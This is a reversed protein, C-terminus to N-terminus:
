LCVKRWDSGLIKRIEHNNNQALIFLESQSPLMERQDPDIKNIKAIAQCCSKSKALYLASIKGLEYWEVINFFANPNPRGLLAKLHSGKVAKSDLFSKSKRISNLLSESRKDQKEFREYCIQLINGQCFISLGKHLLKKEKAYKTAHDIFAKSTSDDFEWEDLKQALKSAYCWLYTKQPNTNRPFQLRHGAKSYSLICWDVVQSIRENNIVVQPM